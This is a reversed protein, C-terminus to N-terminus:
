WVIWVAIIEIRILVDRGGIREPLRQLRRRGFAAQEANPLSQLVQTVPVLIECNLEFSQHFRDASGDLAVRGKAPLLRLGINRAVLQGLGLLASRSRHWPLARSKESFPVQDEGVVGVSKLKKIRM